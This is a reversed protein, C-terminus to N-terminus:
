CVPRGTAGCASLVFCGPEASVGAVDCMRRQSPALAVGTMTGAAGDCLVVVWRAVARTVGAWRLVIRADVGTLLACRGGPAPLDTWTAHAPTALAIALLAIRLRSM